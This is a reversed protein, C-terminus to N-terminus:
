GGLESSLPVLMGASAGTFAGVWSFIKAKDDQSVPQLEQNARDLHQNVAVSKAVVPESYFTIKNSRLDLEVRHSFGRRISGDPSLPPPFPHRLSRVDVLLSQSLLDPASALESSDEMRPFVYYIGVSPMTTALNQLRQLQDHPVTYRRLRSTGKRSAKFQFLMLGAHMRTCADFGLLAEQRQTLGFWLPHPYAPMLATCQAAFTLEVTKESIRM